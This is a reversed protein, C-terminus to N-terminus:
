SALRAAFAANAAALLEEAKGQLAAVEDRLAAAAAEDKLAAANIQVNYIACETGAFLMQAASVGDSAANVNGREVTELAMPMLSASSRAIELPVQAAALYGRQIAAARAARQEETDKRMRFAEMVGDFATADRDALAVLENRGREAEARIERMRDWADEYSKKDITLNCVMEILAAGAAGALAAVAGGGPTPSDSALSALFRDITQDGIVITGAEARSVLRELIQHDADFGELRLDIVDRDTIAAQPVLGVIESSLTAMGRKEAEVRVAEFAPRLGTVEHDV